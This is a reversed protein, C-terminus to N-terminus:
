GNTVKHTRLNISFTDSPETLSLTPGPLADYKSTGAAPWCPQFAGAIATPTVTFRLYGFYRDVYNVLTRTPNARTLGMQVPTPIKQGFKYEGVPYLDYYGGCGAVIYPVEDGNALTRTFRQYNHVHGTLVMDPHRGTGVAKDVINLLYGNSGYEGDESFIPHHLCLILAKGAPASALSQALWDQQPRDVYGSSPCNTYMNVFTALPTDLVFYVYPQNMTTRLTDKSEPAKTPSPACFNRVFASLSDPSAKGDPMDGDHNGPIAFIPANYHRYPYYFQQYYYETQGDFYVVDGLHMLFCPREADPLGFDNEMKDAVALQAQPYDVGGTDGVTHFVMQNHANITAIVDPSIVSALDITPTGTPRPSPLPQNPQDQSTEGTVNTNLDIDTSPRTDAFVHGATGSVGSIVDDVTPLPPPTPPAAPHQNRTSSAAGRGRRRNAM